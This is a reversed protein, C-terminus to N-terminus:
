GGDRGTLAAELSGISLPAAAEDFTKTGPRNLEHIDRGCHPPGIVASSTFPHELPDECIPERHTRTFLDSQRSADVEDCRKREAFFGDYM